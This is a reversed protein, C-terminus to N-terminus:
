YIRNHNVNYEETHPDDRFDEKNSNSCNSRHSSDYNAPINSRLNDIGNTRINM